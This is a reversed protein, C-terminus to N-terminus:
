KVKINFDLLGWGGKSTVVFYLFPYYERLKKLDELHKEGKNGWRYSWKAKMLGRVSGVRIGKVIGFPGESPLLDVKVGNVMFSKSSEGSGGVLDKIGWEDPIKLGKDIDGVLDIDKPERGLDIGRLKLMQTGSLALHTNLDLLTKIM